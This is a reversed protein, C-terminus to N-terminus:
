TKQGEADIPQQLSAIEIFSIDITATSSEREADFAFSPNDFTVALPDFQGDESYEGVSLTAANRSDVTALQLVRDLLQIQRVVHDGTADTASGDGTGFQNPSDETVVAELSIVHEGAGFDLTFKQRQGNSPLSEGDGLQEYIDSLIAIIQSGGRILNDTLTEYTQRMNHSFVFKFQEANGDGDLDVPPPEFVITDYATM